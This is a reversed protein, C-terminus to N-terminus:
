DLPDEEAAIDRIASVLFAMKDFSDLMSELAEARGRGSRYGVVAEADVIISYALKKLSNIENELM